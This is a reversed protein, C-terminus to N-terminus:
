TRRTWVKLAANVEQRIIEPLAQRVARRIDGAIDYGAAGAAAAVLAAPRRGRRSPGRWKYFTVRSVGFRKQVQDATLNERRAAFLIKKKVADSYRKGRRTKPVSDELNVPSTAQRSEDM